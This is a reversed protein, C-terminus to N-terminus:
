ICVYLIAQLISGRLKPIMLIAVLIVIIILNEGGFAKGLTILEEGSM